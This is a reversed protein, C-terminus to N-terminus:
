SCKAYPTCIEPSRGLHGPSWTPSGTVGFSSSIHCQLHFYGVPTRKVEKHLLISFIQSPQHFFQGNKMAQGKTSTSSSARRTRTKRRVSICAPRLDAYLTLVVEEKGHHGAEHIAPKLRQRRQLMILIIIQWQIKRKKTLVGSVGGVGDSSTLLSIQVWSGDKVLSFGHHPETLSKVPFTEVGPGPHPVPNTQNLDFVQYKEM